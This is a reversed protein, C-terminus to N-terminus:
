TIEQTTRNYYSSNIVNHEIIVSCALIHTRNYSSMEHVSIGEDRQHFRPVEPHRGLHAQYLISISGLAASDQVNNLGRPHTVSGAARPRAVCRSVGLAMLALSNTM